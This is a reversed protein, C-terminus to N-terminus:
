LLMGKLGGVPPAALREAVHGDVGREVGRGERDGGDGTLRADRRATPCPTAGGFVHTAGVVLAARTPCPSFHTYLIIYTHRSVPFCLGVNIWLHTQVRHM